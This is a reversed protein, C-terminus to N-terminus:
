SKMIHTTNFLRDGTDTPGKGTFKNISMRLAVLHIEEERLQGLATQLRPISRDQVVGAVVVVRITSHLSRVRKIFEVVTKGNNIVSDVLVITHQGKLHDAKLDKEDHAHIFMASPMADNVGLAMAEGGRMLAIISIRKEDAFHYGDTFKKEVQVHPIPVEQIKIIQPLFQAALYWGVRRHAERLVPGSNNADRMPTQLLKAVDGDTLLVRVRCRHCFIFEECFQKTLQIEPLRNRDLRPVVKAPLLLQQARLGKEVASSLAKEMAQSRAALEGVVVVAHDARHMMDLDLESDGFAWVHLRHTEQIRKVLAGKVAGTVVFGNTIRGGGIVKVAHSLNANEIVKEWVRRLGSTIVIARVHEQKAASQLLSMIEPYMTVEAAVSACIREFDEKGAVDEYLLTAQRFAQYTYGMPGGFLTKLPDLKRRSESLKKFFMPGTDDPALTRDADLVLVTQLKNQGPSLIEDLKREALSLNIAQDHLQFDMLLLLAQDLLDRNRPSISSFLIKSDACVLQLKDSETQQLQLLHTLSEEPRSRKGDKQRRDRVEEAPVDLYIIHTFTDADGQTWADPEPKSGENWFMLHGTVIGVRGSRACEEQIKEIAQQRTSMKAQTSSKQFIDLRVISEIMDSGDYFAFDTEGLSIRLQELLYTKGCGSIGYLGVVTPKKKPGMPQTNLPKGNCNGV